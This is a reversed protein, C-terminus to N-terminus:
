MKGCGHKHEGCHEDRDRVVQRLRRVHLHDVDPQDEVQEEGEDFDEDVCVHVTEPSGLCDFYLAFLIKQWYKKNLFFTSKSSESFCPNFCLFSSSGLLYMNRSVM